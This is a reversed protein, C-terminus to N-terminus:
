DLEVSHSQKVRKVWVPIDHIFRWAVGRRVSKGFIGPEQAAHIMELDLRDRIAVGCATQIDEKWEEDDLNSQQWLCYRKVAADRSGPIDLPTINSFYPVPHDTSDMSGAISPQHSSPLVNTINIPPLPTPANAPANTQRALRQQEEAVLQEQIKVPVDDHSQLPNGQEVFDILARLQHTRLRYHKKGISSIWCHPGLDCPPGPCKMLAYVERWVSPHGDSDEEADLQAARDSLMRQTASSGRKTGQKTMSSPPRSDVYSFSISIRLKKGHRLSEGWEVLRKEIVSWDIDIADFRKTLKLQTRPVVAAIISTDDCRISRNQAVKRQLVRDLKPKLIEHWYATPALVLDEETDDSIKRNNVLVKWEISYHLCSPEDENYSNREDWEDLSLFQLKQPWPPSHHAPSETSVAQLPQSSVSSAPTEESHVFEGFAQTVDYTLEDNYINYAM